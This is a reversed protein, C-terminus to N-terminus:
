LATVGLKREVVACIDEVVACVVAEDPGQAMVRILPETGSPRVSLWEPRGLREQGERIARQIDQDEQWGQRSRVRVNRLRQPCSRMVSALESLKKRTTGMVSLVQLATILGDGTPAIQPLLIHGSQEGGVAAGHTEMAEAVYRDGVNTRLLRIGAQELAQDLGANSMITAVVLNGPLRNQAQFHLALIAMVRDGDVINGQEDSLIVRDADGDFAMGADARTERVTAAMAFPHTSGCAVNINIGDPAANIPVVEAGLERFIQPALEFAAGNACDIVLRMGQLPRADCSPISRQVCAVYEQVPERTARIRGIDGRTSRPLSEVSDLLAEIADEQADALKKGSPGFFKIGNDEFPNHSASVVVGACAGTTLVMQAVAPTPVIGVDIVDVGMTALGSALAAALMDGSLRTDRGLVVVPRQAGTQTRATVGAAMGLRMALTATLVENAVGRVGDTGFLRERTM